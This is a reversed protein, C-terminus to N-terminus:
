KAIPTYKALKPPFFLCLNRCKLEMLLPPLPRCGGARTSTCIFLSPGHQAMRIAWDSESFSSRSSNSNSNAAATRITIYGFTTRSAQSHKEPKRSHADNAKQFIVNNKSDTIRNALAPARYSPGYAIRRRIKILWCGTPRDAREIAFLQEDM